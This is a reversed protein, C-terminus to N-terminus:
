WCREFVMFTTDGSITVPMTDPSMCVRLVPQLDDLGVPDGCSAVLLVIAGLLTGYTPYRTFPRRLPM